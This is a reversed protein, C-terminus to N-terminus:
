LWSICVKHYSGQTHVKDTFTTDTFKNQPVEHYDDIVQMTFHKGINLM